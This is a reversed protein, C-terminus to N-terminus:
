FDVHLANEKVEWVLDIWGTPIYHVKGSATIIRHGGSRSVNLAVPEEILIKDGKPFIYTRQEESELSSFSMNEPVRITDFTVKNM